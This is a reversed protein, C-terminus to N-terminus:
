KNSWVSAALRSRKDHNLGKIHQAALGRATTNQWSAFTYNTNFKKQLAADLTELAVLMYELTPKSVVNIIDGKTPFPSKIPAEYAVVSRHYLVNGIQHQRIERPFDRIVDCAREM